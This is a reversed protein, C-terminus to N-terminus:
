KPRTGGLSLRLALFLSEYYDTAGGALIPALTPDVPMHNFDFGYGVFDAGGLVQLFSTLDYGVSLGYDLGFGKAGPFWVKELDVDHLTLLVRPAFHAQVSLKWFHVRGELGPRLYRYQVDPVLPGLGTNGEDGYLIFSQSGYEMFLALEAPGLPLRGRLGVDWAQAKTRLKTTLASGDPRNQVYDTSTAFGLEAGAMLGINALVKDTWFAAPYLVGNVLVAPAFALDYPELTRPYTPDRVGRLDTYKWHRSYGRLGATLEFPTRGPKSESKPAAPKEGEEEEGKPEDDSAPEPKPEEPAAEAPEPTEDAPAAKPAEKAAPEEEEEEVPEAGAGGSRGNLKGGSAHALAPAITSDFENEVARQLKSSSGGKVKIQDVLRGDAKYVNLTLDQNRSVTGLLVADVSLSAAMKAIASKGASGKLDEADTVAFSTSDHLVHMLSLRIKSSKPGDFRGIAINKRASAPPQHAGLVRVPHANAM